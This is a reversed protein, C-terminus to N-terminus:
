KLLQKIYQREKFSIKGDISTVLLCITVIDEQLKEDVMSIIQIMEQTIKKLVTIGQKDNRFMQKVSNFDFDNGFAMVLSPYILLYEREDIVGDSAVAGVIFTALTTVADVGDLNLLRLKLLTNASKEIIMGSRTSLDLKEYANCLKTFEFM